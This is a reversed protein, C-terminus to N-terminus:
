KKKRQFNQYDLFYLIKISFTTNQPSNIVENFNKNFKTTVLPGDAEIAKKYIINLFSGPAFRWEYVV